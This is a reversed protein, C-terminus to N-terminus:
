KATNIFNEIKENDYDTETLFVFDGESNKITIEGYTGGVGFAISKNGKKFGVSKIDNKAFTLLLKDKLFSMVINYIIWIIIHMRGESQSKYKTFTVDGNELIELYGKPNSFTSKKYLVYDLRM